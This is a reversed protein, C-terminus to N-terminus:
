PRTRWTVPVHTNHKPPTREILAGITIILITIIIIINKMIIIM